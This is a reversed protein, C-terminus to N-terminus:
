QHCVQCNRATHLGVPAAQALSVTHCGTCCADRLSSAQRGVCRAPLRLVAMTESLLGQQGDGGTPAHRASRGLPGILAAAGVAATILLL